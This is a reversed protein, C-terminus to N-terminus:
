SNPVPPSSSPRMSFQCGCYNQRYLGWARALENSRKFGDQKKFDRALFKDGAVEAGIRNVVVAKKRPSVTLTTTMADLGKDRLLEATKELRLRYCVVCRAGDEPEQALHGAVKYWEEPDYRPVELPFVLERAVVEAVELRREYEERPHINPNYFLGLLEHGESKLREAVGAACVGCCIHLLIRM